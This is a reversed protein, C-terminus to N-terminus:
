RVSISFANFVKRHFHILKLNLQQTCRQVCCSNLKAVAFSLKQKSVSGDTAFFLRYTQSAFEHLRLFVPTRVTCGTDMFISSPFISQRLPARHLIHGATKPAEKCRTSVCTSM